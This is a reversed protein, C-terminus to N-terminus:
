GRPLGLLSAYVALTAACMAAVSFHAGVHARARATLASRQAADMQLVLAIADALAAPDGAPVRWGTRAAADVEPPALVTEPVAGLDSVVVPIGAAQAEVAARGFAEPETSTVVAVDALSLAAPVDSCHGVLRVRGSLGAAAIRAELEARYGTRGQDDGAMVAVVDPYGRRALEAMADVVVRQGKWATLRALQLVVRTDASIGWAARLAARRDGGVAEPALASLDSGRHIVTIRDRAFPHREAILHATYASNAIVADGRAMVSNYLSKFFNTQKYIGHYTTVFPVKAARAAWLASWAPARSRAHILSVSRSRILASLHGANRRLVAPNKSSVPLVIHEAGAAELEGVLRGGESVVLATWGRAVIAAAVDVATREAGGTDLEPIVQLIVPPAAPDPM